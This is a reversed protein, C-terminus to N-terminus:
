IKPASGNRGIQSGHKIKKGAKMQDILKGMITKDVDEYYDDNIQVVPANVCAGLCEVETISFNGDNTVQKCKINLKDYCTQMIKEAGRLLCPTTTCIQIHYKGVPKLNFMTYFTAVEYARILPMDLLHAVYEITDQSLWGENQRQAMDLLPLIASQERGEPYKKIIQNAKKLNVENFCFKTM